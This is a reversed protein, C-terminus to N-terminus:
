YLYQILLWIGWSEASLWKGKSQPSVQAQFSVGALDRCASYKQLYDAKAAEFSINRLTEHYLRYKQFMNQMSYIRSVM